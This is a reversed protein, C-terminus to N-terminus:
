MQAGLLNNWDRGRSLAVVTLRGVQGEAFQEARVALSTAAQDLVEICDKRPAAGVNDLERDFRGEVGSLHVAGVVLAQAVM